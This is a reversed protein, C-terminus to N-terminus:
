GQRMTSYLVIASLYRGQEQKRLVDMGDSVRCVVDDEVGEFRRTDVVSSTRPEFVGLDEGKIIKSSENLEITQRRV